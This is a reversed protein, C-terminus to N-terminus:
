RRGARRTQGLSMVDLLDNIGDIDFEDPDFEGGVWTSLQEHEEHTSDALVELLHAYGWIGGCDEPPSARRGGHLVAQKVPEDLIKEVVIDHEWGDGFDYEYRFKARETPAVDSLRVRAEDRFQLEPEPVGYRIGGVDFVHLHYDDWGMAYQIIVHLDALTASAPVVLRRWIPPKAGRLSVKIQYAGSPARKSSPTRAAPVPSVKKTTRPPREASGRSKGLGQLLPQEPTPPERGATAQPSELMARVRALILARLKAFDASVPEGRVEDSAACASELLARARAPEIERFAALMEDSTAENHLATVLTDVDDVAFADKAIGGLNHDLLVCLGHRQEGYSFEVVVDAQDGHVDEQLWCRNSAVQGIRAAAAPQRVGREMLSHAAAAAADRVDPSPSIVALTSLVLLGLPSRRQTAYRVLMAGFIKDADVDGFSPMAWWQGVIESLTMEVVFPDPV